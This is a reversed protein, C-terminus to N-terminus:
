PLQRERKARWREGGEMWRVSKEDIIWIREGFDFVEAKAGFNSRPIIISQNKIWFEVGDTRSQSIEHWPSMRHMQNGLGIVQSKRKAQTPLREIARDTLMLLSAENGPDRQISRVHDFALQNGSFIENGVVLDTENGKATEAQRSIKWLGQPSRLVSWDSEPAIWMYEDWAKSLIRLPLEPVLGVSQTAKARSFIAPGETTQTLALDQLGLISGVTPDSAKYYVEKELAGLGAASTAWPTSNLSFLGSVHDFDFGGQNCSIPFREPGSTLYFSVIGTESTQNILWQGIHAQRASDLTRLLIGSTSETLTATQRPLGKVKWEIAGFRRCLTADHQVKAPIPIPPMVRGSLNFRRIGESDALLLTGASVSVASHPWGGPLGDTQWNRAERWVQEEAAKWFPSLDGTQPVRMLSFTDEQVDVASEAEPAVRENFVGAANWTWETFGGSVRKGQIVENRRWLKRVSAAPRDTRQLQGEATFYGIADGENSLLAFGDKSIFAACPKSFPMEWGSKRRTVRLECPQPKIRHLVLAAGQNTGSISAEFSEDKARRGDRSFRGSWPNSLQSPGPAVVGLTVQETDADFLPGYLNPVIREPVFRFDSLSGSTKRIWLAGKFIFELQNDALSVPRINSPQDVEVGATTLAGIPSEIPNGKTQLHLAFAENVKKWHLSVESTLQMFSHSDYSPTLPIPGLKIEFDPPRKGTCADGDFILSGFDARLKAVFGTPGWAQIKEVDQHPLRGAHLSMPLKAFQGDSSRIRYTGLEPSRRPFSLVGFDVTPQSRAAPALTPKSVVLGPKWTYWNGSASQYIVEKSKGASVFPTGDQETAASLIDAELSLAGGVTIMPADAGDCFLKGNKREYNWLSPAATSTSWDPTVDVWKNDRWAKWREGQTQILLEGNWTRLNEVTQPVSIFTPPSIQSKSIWRQAVLVGPQSTELFLTTDEGTGLTAARRIEDIALSGAASVEVNTGALSIDWETARPSWQLAGTSFGRLPVPTPADVIRCEGIRKVGERDAPCILWRGDPRTALHLWLNSDNPLVALGAPRDISLGNSSCDIEVEERADSTKVALTMRFHNTEGPKSWKLTKFEGPREAPSRVSGEGQALAIKGDIFKAVSRNQADALLISGNEKLPLRFAAISEGAPLRLLERKFGLEGRKWHWVQGLGDLTLFSEASIPRAERWADCALVSQDAAIVGFVAGTVKNQLTNGVLTVQGIERYPRPAAPKPVHIKQVSSDRMRLPLQNTEDAGSEFAVPYMSDFWGDEALNMGLVTLGRNSGGQFRLPSQDQKQSAATKAAVIWNNRQQMVILSREQIPGIEPREVDPSVTFEVVFHGQHQVFRADKVLYDEEEFSMRGLDMAVSKDAWRRLRFGAAMTESGRELYCLEKGVFGVETTSPAIKEVSGNAASVHFFREEAKIIFGNSDTFVKLGEHNIKEPLGTVPLMWGADRAILVESIGQDPHNLLLLAAGSESSDFMGSQQGNFPPTARTFGQLTQDSGGPIKLVVNRTEINPDAFQMWGERTFWAQGQIHDRVVVKNEASYLGIQATPSKRCAILTNGAMGFDTWEDSGNSALNWRAYATDYTFIEGRSSLWALMSTNSISMCTGMSKRLAEPVGPTQSQRSTGLNIERADQVDRWTLLMSEGIGTGTLPSVTASSLTDLKLVAAGAPGRTIAVNEGMEKALSTVSDVTRSITQTALSYEFAKSGALGWFTNDPTLLIQSVSDGRERSPKKAPFSVVTHVSGGDLTQVASDTKRIWALEGGFPAVDLVDSELPVLKPSEADDILHLSTAGYGDSSKVVALNGSRLLKRNKPLVESGRVLSLSRQAPQYHLLEGDSGVIIASDRKWPVAQNLRSPWKGERRFLREIASMSHSSYPVLENLGDVGGAVWSKGDPGAIVSKTAAPLRELRYEAGNSNQFLRYIENGRYAFLENGVQSFRTIGASEPIAKMQAAKPDRFVAGDPGALFVTDGHTLSARISAGVVAESNKGGAVRIPAGATDILSLNGRAPDFAAVWEGTQQLGEATIQLDVFPRQLGMDGRLVVRNANILLLHNETDTEVDRYKQASASGGAAKWSLDEPDATLLRGMKDLAYLVKTGSIRRLLTDGVNPDNPSILLNAMGTAGHTRLGNSPDWIALRDGALAISSAIPTEITTASGRYVKHARKLGGSATKEIAWVASSLGSSNDKSLFTWAAQESAPTVPIAEWRRNEPSYLALGRAHGVLLSPRESELGALATIPSGLQLAPAEWVPPYLTPRGGKIQIQRITQAALAFTAGKANILTNFPREDDPWPMWQADDRWFLKGSESLAILNEFRGNTQIRTLTEVNLPESLSPKIWSILAPAGSAKSRKQVPGLHWPEGVRSTPNGFFVDVGNGTTAVHLPAFNAPPEADPAQHVVRFRPQSSPLETEGLELVRGRSDTVLIKGDHLDANLLAGLNEGNEDTAQTGARNTFGRKSRDWTLIRGTDLLLYLDRKGTANVAMLIKAGALSDPNPLISEMVTQSAGLGLEPQGRNLNVTVRRATGDASELVAVIGGAGADLSLLKEGPTQIIDADLTATDPSTPAEPNCFFRTLGGSRGAVLLVPQKRVPDFMAIPTPENANLKVTDATPQEAASRESTNLDYIRWASKPLFDTQSLVRARVRIPRGNKAAEVLWLTPITDVNLAAHSIREMALDTNGDLRLRWSNGEREYLRQSQTRIWLRNGSALIQSVRESDPLTGTIETASGKETLGPDLEFVRDRTAQTSNTKTRVVVFAHANAEPQGDAAVIESDPLGEFTIEGLERTENRYILWRSNEHLLKNAGVRLFHTIKDADPARLSTPRIVPLWGAATEIDAGTSIVSQGQDAPLYTVVGVQGTKSVAVDSLWPSSPGGNDPRQARLRFTTSNLRHLGDGRTAMLLVDGEPTADAAAIMSAAPTVPGSLKILPKLPPGFPRQYLWLAAGASLCFTVLLTVASLGTGLDWGARPLPPLQGTSRHSEVVAVTQLPRVLTAKLKTGFGPPDAQLVLASYHSRRVATEGPGLAGELRLVRAEAQLRVRALATRVWFPRNLTNQRGLFDLTWTSLQEENLAELLLLSGFIEEGTAEARLHRELQRISQQTVKRNRMERACVRLWPTAVPSTELKELFRDSATNSPHPGIWDAWRILDWAKVLRSPWFPGSQVESDFRHLVALLDLEAIAASAVDSCCPLIKSHLQSDLLQRLRMTVADLSREFATEIAHSRALTRGIKKRSDHYLVLSKVLWGPLARGHSSNIAGFLILELAQLPGAGHREKRLWLRFIATIISSLGGTSAFTVTLALCSLVGVALDNRAALDSRFLFHSLLCLGLGFAFTHLTKVWIGRSRLPAALILVLALAGITLIPHGHLLDTEAIDLLGLASDAPLSRLNLFSGTTLIVAIVLLAGGVVSQLPLIKWNVPRKM